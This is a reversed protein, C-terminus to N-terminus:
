SVLFLIQPREGKCLGIPLGMPEIDNFFISVSVSLFRCAM